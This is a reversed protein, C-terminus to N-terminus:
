FETCKSKPQAQLHVAGASPKSVMEAANANEASVGARASASANKWLNKPCKANFIVMKQVNKGHGNIKEVIFHTDSFFTERFIVFKM